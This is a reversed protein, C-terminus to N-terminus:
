FVNQKTLVLPTAVLVLEINHFSKIQTLKNM